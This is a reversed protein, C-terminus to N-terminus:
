LEYYMSEDLSELWEEFEDNSEAQGDAYWHEFRDFEPVEISPHFLYEERRNGGNSVSGFPDYTDLYESEFVFKQWGEQEKQSYFADARERHQRGAEEKKAELEKLTNRFIDDRFVM